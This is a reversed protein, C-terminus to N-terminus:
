EEGPPIKSRSAAVVGYIYEQAAGLYHRPDFLCDLDGTTLQAGVKPDASLIMRLERKDKRGRACAAEIIEHAQARDINEDLTMSLAEAFILGQTLDLNKRTRQVDVELNPAITALHHTIGATLQAIDSDGM